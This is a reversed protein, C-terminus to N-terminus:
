RIKNHGKRRIYKGRHEGILKGYGGHYNTGYSISDGVFAVTKGDLPNNNTNPIDGVSCATTTVVAVILM